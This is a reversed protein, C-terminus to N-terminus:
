SLLKMLVVCSCSAVAMCLQPDCSTHTQKQNTPPLETSCGPFWLPQANQSCAVPLSAAGGNSTREAGCTFAEPLHLDGATRQQVPVYVQPFHIMLIPVVLVKAWGFAAVHACSIGATNKM